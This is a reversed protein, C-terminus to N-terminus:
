LEYHPRDIFSKFDGGWTIKIGLRKAVLKIYDSLLKYRKTDEYNIPIPHADFALGSQHKSKLIIGDCKSRGDHYLKTQEAQSRVGDTVSFKIPTNKIAETILLVLKPNLGILNEKTRKDMLM